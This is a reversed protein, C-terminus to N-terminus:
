YQLMRRLNDRIQKRDSLNLSRVTKRVPLINAPAVSLYDIHMDLFIETLSTDAGLEGCIGVKIGNAHANDVVMKIMRLVALHNDPSFAAYKPNQRDIALTYQELDNTGISFFDVEKALLDSLIVAAPTEIMAGLTVDDSFPINEAILEEKVESIIEKVARIESVDIILPLLISLKGYVSARYLARLQTKFIDPRELCIRVSRFGLAPNIEDDLGFYDVKKDAGIDLTRIVVQKGKMDELVRRYNYFQKEEDPYDDLGLYLFESRMMGIGGADNEIAFAVDEQGGINAMVGIERGDRTINKRGRLRRLFERKRGEVAEKQDLMRCTEKDPEIYLTGSYGDVIAYKGDLKECLMDGMSVIAPINMTRAIIATHSNSSGHSTCFAVVKSKDLMITESPMLDDSCIISNEDICLKRISRNQMLRMVRESVDKFDATRERIYDSEMDSIMECFNRTTKALAYEANYKQNKIIDCVSKEFQIDKLIMEHIVFIQAGDEGIEDLAQQYLERLQHIAEDRAIAYRDYEKQPNDVKLKSVTVNDKNFFVLNGRVIGGLVSKGKLKLM